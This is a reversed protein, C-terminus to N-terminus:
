AVVERPGEGKIAEALAKVTEEIGTGMPVATLIVDVRRTGSGVSARHYLRGRRKLSEWTQRHCPYALCGFIRKTTPISSYALVQLLDARHGDRLHDGLNSWQDHNLEEWHDKYKADFVITEDERDLILDPLLYKQSGVYPPDWVLPAITERKRGARVTGGIRRALGTVVTEVWAEFFEEMSMIWPLGQLDGLGALGRDEVTWEVAQLGNRFVETRLSGRYWADIAMASPQKPVVSRVRELLSQCLDILQLVAVGVKRQSELSGLQKRLTFHIAARLEGDDRLDPYRCPVDLFRASTIRNAAYCTWNVTGRPAPLDSEAFEFRRDLRDLM